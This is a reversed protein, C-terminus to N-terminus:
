NFELANLRHVVRQIFPELLTSLKDNFRGALDCWASGAPTMFFEYAADAADDPAMMYFPLQLEILEEIMGELFKPHAQLKRVYVSNSNFYKNLGPILSRDLERRILTRMKEEKTM